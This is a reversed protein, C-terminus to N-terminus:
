SPSTAARRCPLKGKDGFSKAYASNASLVETEIESM